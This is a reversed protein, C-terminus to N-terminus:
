SHWSNLEALDANIKDLMEALKEREKEYEELLPLGTVLELKEETMDYHGLSNDKNSARYYYYAMRTLTRTRINMLYGEAIDYGEQLKEIMLKLGRYKAANRDYYSSRLKEAKNICLQSMHPQKLKDFQAKERELNELRDTARLNEMAIDTQLDSISQHYSNRMTQFDAWIWRLKHDRNMIRYRRKKRSLYKQRKNRYRQPEYVSFPSSVFSLNETSGAVTRTIEEKQFRGTRVDRSARWGLYLKEVAGLELQMVEMFGTM